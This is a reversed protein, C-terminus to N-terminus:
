PPHDVELFQLNTRLERFAEASASQTLDQFDVAPHAKREKDFPITGVLAKGSISEIERRNKITNDLRDRLVALAIGLLLGLVNSLVIAIVAAKLTSVLGPILYETWVEGTFFPQWAAGALQGRQVLVWIIWVAVAAVIALGIVNIIALNRRGRPGPVDFLKELQNM